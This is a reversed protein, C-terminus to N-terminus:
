TPLKVTVPAEAGGVPDGFGPRDLAEALHRFPVRLLPEGAVLVMVFNLAAAVLHLLPLGLYELLRRGEARLWARERVLDRAHGHRQPTAPVAAPVPDASSRRSLLRLLPPTGYQGFLFWGMGRVGTWGFRAVSLSFWAGPHFTNGTQQVIWPTMAEAFPRYLFVVEFFMVFLEVLVSLVIFALARTKIADVLVQICVFSGLALFFLCIWLIPALARLPADNGVVDVLAEEMSPTVTYTFVTAELACWLVLLGVAIWPVGPQFAPLRRARSVPPLLFSMSARFALKALLCLLGVFVVIARAIGAWYMWVALVGQWWALLLTSAFRIRQRRFPITYVALQTCWIATLGLLLPLALLACKASAPAAPSSGAVADILLAQLRPIWAIPALLLATLERWREPWAAFPM